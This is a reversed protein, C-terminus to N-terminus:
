LHMWIMVSGFKYRSAASRRLAAPGNDRGRLQPANCSQPLRRGTRRGTAGDVDVFIWTVPGAFRGGCPSSRVRARTAVRSSGARVGEGTMRKPRLRAVDSPDVRIRHNGPNSPEHVKM